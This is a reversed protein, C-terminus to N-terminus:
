TPRSKDGCWRASKRLNEEAWLPQLNSFHFCARQQAPDTLDFSACPRIHDIHWLHRNEWTMGPKFKSELHHLLEERSCGMLEQTRGSKDAYSRRLSALLRARLRRMVAFKVDGRTRRREYERRVVRLRTKNKKWYVRGRDRIVEINRLRYLKRRVSIQERCRQRYGRRSAAARAKNRRYYAGARARLAERNERYYRRDRERKEECHALRYARCRKLVEERNRLYREAKKKRIRERNVVRYVAQYGRCCEKCHKRLGTAVSADRFFESVPKEERCRTCRSFKM